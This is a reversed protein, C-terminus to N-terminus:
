NEIKLQKLIENIQNLIFDNKLEYPSMREAHKMILTKFCTDTKVRTRHMDFIHNLIASNHSIDSNLLQQLRKNEDDLKDFWETVKLKQMATQMEPTRMVDIM